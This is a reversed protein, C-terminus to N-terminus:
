GAECLPFTPDNGFSMLVAVLLTVPEAPLPALSRVLRDIKPCDKIKIDSTVAQVLGANMLERLANDSIGTLMKAADSGDEGTLKLMASRAQPWNRDAHEQFRAALAAGSTALFSSAGLSPSCTKTASRLAPPAMYAVLATVEPDTMCAKPAAVSTGSLSALMVFGCFRHLRGM